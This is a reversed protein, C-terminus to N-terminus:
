QLLLVLRCFLLSWLIPFFGLFYKALKFVTVLLLLCTLYLIQFETRSFLIPGFVSLAKAEEGLSPLARHYQRDRLIVVRVEYSSGVELLNFLWTLDFYTCSLTLCMHQRKRLWLRLLQVCFPFIPALPHVSSVCSLSTFACPWIWAPGLFWVMKTTALAACWLLSAALSAVSACSRGKGEFWNTRAWIYRNGDSFSFFFFFISQPIEKTWKLM